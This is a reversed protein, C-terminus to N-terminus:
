GEERQYREGYLQDYADTWAERDEDGYPEFLDREMEEYDLNDLEQRQQELKRYNAMEPHSDDEEIPWGDEEMISEWLAEGLCLPLPPVWRKNGRIVVDNGDYIWSPSRMSVQDFRHYEKNRRGKECANRNDRPKHSRRRPVRHHREWEDMAASYTIIESIEDIAESLFRAADVFGTMDVTFSHNFDAIEECMVLYDWLSM